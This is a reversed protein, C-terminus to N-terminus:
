RVRGRPALVLAISALGAAVAFTLQMGSEGGPGLALMEVGRSGVAFLAGM